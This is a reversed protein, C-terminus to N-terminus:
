KHNLILDLGQPIYFRFKQDSSILPIGLTIAHCIIIHDSPDKHDQKLNLELKAYRSVVNKDIPYIHINTKKKLFWVFEDANAWDKSQIKGNNFLVVIERITEASIGLVNDSDYLISAVEDTLLDRDRLFYLLTCTDLLYRM